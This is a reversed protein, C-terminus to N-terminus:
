EIGESVKTKAAFFPVWFQRSNLKFKRSLRSDIIPNYSGMLQKNYADEREQTYDWSSFWKKDAQRIAYAEDNEPQIDNEVFAYSSEPFFCIPEQLGRWYLRLLDSLKNEANAVPPLTIKQVDVSGELTYLTSMGSHGEPKVTQFLLHKIWLEILYKAKVKGLRFLLQQHEYVQDLKGTLTLSDCKFNVELSALHKYNLEQQIHKGFEEVQRAQGNYARDGPWGTPLWDRASAVQKFSKLSSQDALYEELIEQGIQYQQLGNLKFRERDEDLVEGERLNIGLRQQLLYRAPHQFFSILERVSVTKYSEDPKSLSREMFRLKKTVKQHLVTAIRKDQNSYTFLNKNINRSLYSSSFSQLKHKQVLEKEEIKYQDSLYDILERVVVSPPFEIEKKNSQGTYSFYIAHEAAVINELFVQRNEKGPLRDGPRPNKTILNFEVTNAAGPFIGDNMGIMCVMKAPINRMPVMGSFTVGRGPRGGGTGEQEIRNELYSRIVRFSIKQNMAAHQQETPLSHLVERLKQLSILYPEEEVFFESLWKGMIQSWESLTHKECTQQHCRFLRNLFTSFCGLLRADETRFIEEYPYIGNFLVHASTQMAYGTMMRNLGAQWTFSPSEPLGMEKKQKGNIGWHIHNEEIWREVTQIEEASFALAQRIPESDLLDLVDTVKFRSDVLHLIKQFALNVRSTQSATEVLHHPIKPMGEEVAGFIAEIEPAYTNMDPCLVLIDSPELHKNKDLIQLLQNYLVEVERRASHCSHVQISDDVAILGSSTQGTVLEKRFIEFLNSPADKDPQINQNTVESLGSDKKVEDLLLTRFEIGAQGLSHVLTNSQNGSVDVLYFHIDIINSLAVLTEIYAAPMDSVAFVSLQQPLDDVPITGTNIRELLTHHLTARHVGSRDSKAQWHEDLKNWLVAQWYESESGTPSSRNEWARLMDPRYTLYQDFVDAIRGALNWCRMEKKKQDQNQIYDRLIFLAPDDDELLIQFLVWRMPRRDSALNEPIEPDMMRMIHWYIEAPFKFQLNAAIGEKEAIYLSLWRAMGYNQVVFLEPALVNKSPHLRFQKLLEDALLQLQSGSHITLM